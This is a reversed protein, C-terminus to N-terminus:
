GNGIIKSAFAVAPANTVIAIVVSYILPKM